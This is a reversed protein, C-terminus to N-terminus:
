TLLFLCIQAVHSGTTIHVLYEENDPKFPYQRAFDHLTGYVGEFDWPDAFHITHPRVETEPSVSKLDKCVTDCITAFKPEYLLEFRHVLLDEQQCISVSPRWREWRETGRGNDLSPGLLGLIVLKKAM